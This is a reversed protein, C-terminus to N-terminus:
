LLTIVHTDTNAFIDKVRLLPLLIFVVRNDAEVGGTPVIGVVVVVM